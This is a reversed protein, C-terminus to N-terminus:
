YNDDQDDIWSSLISLHQQNILTSDISSNRSPLIPFNLKTKPDLHYCIIEMFLDKSLVKELPIVYRKFDVPSIELWRILPIFDSMWDKVSTFDNSSWNSIDEIDLAPTVQAVSWKILYNWIEIEDMFLVNRKLLILLIEKDLSIFDESDFLLNPIECIYDFCYDKLLSCAEHLLVTQLIRLPDKSLFGQYNDILHQLLYKVIGEINMEDAAVLILLLDVPEYNNFELKGTYFYKLIFGFVKPSVNPKTFTIYENEKQIWNKSFAACFYSSRARLIISHVKFEEIDDDSGAKIIMDYNKENEFFNGLDQSLQLLSESEM